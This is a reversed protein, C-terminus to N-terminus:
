RGHGAETPLLATVLLLDIVAVADPGVAVAATRGGTTILVNEPHDVPYEAGDATKIIFKRFPEARLTTRLQATTM